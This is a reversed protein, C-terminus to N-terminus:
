SPEHLLETLIQERDEHSLVHIFPNSQRLRTARESESVLFAALRAPSMSKLLRDWERLEHHEAPSAVQMRQNLWEEARQTLSPDSRLRKAVAQAYALARNELDRHHSVKKTVINHPILLAQIPIGFILRANQLSAREAESLAPIDSRSRGRVEITVDSDREVELLAEHLEEVHRSLDDDDDLIGLILPDAFDDRCEAVPGEIWSSIPPPRLREVEARLADEVAQAREQEVRFLDTLARSLPHEYRLRCQQVRGRRYELVGAAFLRDLARYVAARTLQSRDALEAPAHFEGPANALERLLRVNAESGIITNLPAHFAGHCRPRM